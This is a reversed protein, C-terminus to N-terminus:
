QSNSGDFRAQRAKLASCYLDFYLRDWHSNTNKMLGKHWYISATTAALKFANDEIFEGFGSKQYDCEDCEHESPIELLVTELRARDIWFKRELVHTFKWKDEGKLQKCRPCISYIFDLPEGNLQIIKQPKYGDPYGTCGDIEVIPNVSDNFNKVKPCPPTGKPKVEYWYDFCNDPSKVFFDPLYWAGSPLQFGEVEYSWDLGMEEFFVAWRAELRSRFHYGKYKTQIPKLNSLEAM